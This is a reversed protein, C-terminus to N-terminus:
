GPSDPNLTDPLLCPQPLPEPSVLSPCSCWPTPNLHSQLAPSSSNYTSKYLQLRLASASIPMQWKNFIQLLKM